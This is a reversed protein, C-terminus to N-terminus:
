RLKVELREAEQLLRRRGGRAALARVQALAAHAEAPPLLPALWLRIQAALHHSGLDDAHALARSLRHIALREEGRALALLGLNATLGAVREPMALREALALGEDFWGQAADLDGAALRIEGLTSLVFPRLGQVGYEDALRLAEQAYGEAQPDGLLLSHYALNNHVLVRWEAFAAGEVGGIVELTERYFDLARALDGQQAAVSGLEFSAQALSDLDLPPEAALLLERARHLREAAGALDLGELSLGSGWLLEARAALADQGSDLVQRALAIVEAFRAQPMLTVGLELRALGAAAQEGRAEAMAVAARLTEAASAHEGAFRQAGGLGMLLPLRADEPTAALAMQYFGVAERWAALKAARRAAILAYQAAREPAGGEEFHSALLGAVEELNGRHTQELAEGIRRHLLRHRAEGVERYAVEMTLTHDFSYRLQEVHHVLGGARLEDLADLSAAESLAAAQAVVDFEFARGAAVAVDLVRRAEDSLRALRAQILSYLTDPVVPTASLQDLNLVGDDRLLMRARAYRLLEVLFYPNGESNRRLWEALPVGYDPSLQRALAEVEADDLRALSLRELRAERTLAQALRALPARPDVPRATALLSLPAGASRRALYGLLALTADDAWQLDDLFLALPRVRALALVFQSLGEWLRSEAPLASPAPTPSLEPLLRATEAMWVAPLVLADRLAPWEPRAILGRLAEILPQYPQSHELERAAGVLVLGGQRALYEEALRTKGIGPEGEILVLAGTAVMQELRALEVARGVFPLSQHEAQPRAPVPAIRSRWASLSPRGATAGMEEMLRDTVIADYLRQTEAMPPVGMAEDLLRRLTEYRRIAGARDGALYNLRMGARQLDEQLPDFALARGLAELGACYDGEAEYARALGAFGRAALTRYRERRELMWGEFEPADPVEFGALFEGRYRALAEALARADPTRGALAGALARADVDAEVWLGEDGAVLAEGLAQRLGHLATRLLQQAAPREHDPWLLAYLRERSLPGEAEALAFLLARSRRRAITLPADDRLIQAEGLLNITYSSVSETGFRLDV